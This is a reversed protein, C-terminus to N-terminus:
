FILTWNNYSYMWKMWKHKTVIFINHMLPYFPPISERSSHMSLWNPKQCSVREMRKNQPSGSPISHSWEQAVGRIGLLSQSM